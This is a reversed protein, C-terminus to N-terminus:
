DPKFDQLADCAMRTSRRIYDSAALRVQRFAGAPKM